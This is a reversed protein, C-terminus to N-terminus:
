HVLGNSEKSHCTVTCPWNMQLKFQVPGMENKSEGVLGPLGITEERAEWRLPPDRAHLTTKVVERISAM